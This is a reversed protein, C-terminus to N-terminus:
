KKHAAHQAFLRRAAPSLNEWTTRNSSRAEYFERGENGIGHAKTTEPKTKM